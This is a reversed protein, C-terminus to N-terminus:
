INPNRIIQINLLSWRIFANNYAIEAQQLIEREYHIQKRQNENKQILKPREVKYENELELFVQKNSFGLKECYYSLKETM